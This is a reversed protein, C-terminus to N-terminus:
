SVAKGGGPNGGKDDLLGEIYVMRVVVMGTVVLPTAFLLGTFGFLVAMGVTATVALVPPLSVVREQILPMVVHGESQQIFLYFLAVWLAMGPSQAFAILIAPVAALIPGVFPVFELLGALVGLSLALPMGLLLLGGTTLLGIAVMSIAQGVLWARLSHAIAAMVERTRPRLRPPALQVLGDAYPGPDVALYVTVMLMLVANALGGLVSTAVGGLRALVGTPPKAESGLRTLVQAWQQHDLWTQFSAFAAPLKQTLEAFQVSIRGGILWGSLALLGVVLLLVLPV